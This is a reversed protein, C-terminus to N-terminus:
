YENKKEDKVLRNSVYGLKNKLVKYITPRSMGTLKAIQTVSLNSNEKLNKVNNILNKTIVTKRGKYKGLKKAVAIGEMQRQRRRDNEFEALASLTSGMFRNVSPDDSHPLDLAIFNIKRDYLMHRFQLFEKTNRTCRDFKTVVLVDNTKLEQTILHYFIPRKKLEGAASGVETRINEKAIGQNLLEHKQSKLSSNNEQTKSSVRAYGYKTGTNM